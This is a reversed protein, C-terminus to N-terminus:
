VEPSGIIRWRLPAAGHMKPDGRDGQVRGLLHWYGRSGLHHHDLHGGPGAAPGRLATVRKSLLQNTIVNLPTTGGKDRQSGNRVKACRAEGEANHRAREPPGEESEMAM